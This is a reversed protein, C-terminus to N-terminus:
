PHTGTGPHPPVTFIAGCGTDTTVGPGRTTCRVVAAAAPYRVLAGCPRHVTQAQLDHHVDGPAATVIVTGCCACCGHVRQDDDGPRPRRSCATPTVQECTPCRLYLLPALGGPQAQGARPRPVTM